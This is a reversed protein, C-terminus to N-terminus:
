TLLQRVPAQSNFVPLCCLAGHQTTICSAVHSMCDQHDQSAVRLFHLWVQESRDWIASIPLSTARAQHQRVHRAPKTTAPFGIHQARRAAVTGALARHFSCGPAHQLSLM